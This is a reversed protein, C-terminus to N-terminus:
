AEQQSQQIGATEELWSYQANRWIHELRDNDMRGKWRGTKNYINTTTSNRLLPANPFPLEAWLPAIDKDPDVAEAEIEYPPQQENHKLEVSSNSSNSSTRTEIHPSM